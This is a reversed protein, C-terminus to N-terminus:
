FKEFWEFIDPKGRGDEGPEGGTRTHGPRCRGSGTGTDQPAILAICPSSPLSVYSVIKETAVVEPIYREPGHHSPSEELNGPSALIGWPPNRRGLLM